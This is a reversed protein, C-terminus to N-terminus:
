CWYGNSTLSVQISTAEAHLQPKKIHSFQNPDRFKHWITPPSPTTSQKTNTILAPVEDSYPQASTIPTPVGDSAHQTPTLSPPVGDSTHQTPTLSPPVGDSTHQPSCNAWNQEDRLALSFLEGLKTWSFSCLQVIRGLKNLQFLLASCNGENFSGCFWNFCFLLLFVSTEVRCRKIFHTVMPRKRLSRM